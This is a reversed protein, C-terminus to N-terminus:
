GNFLDLVIRQRRSTRRTRFPRATALVQYLPRFADAPLGRGSASLVKGRISYSQGQSIHALAERYLSLLEADTYTYGATLKGM